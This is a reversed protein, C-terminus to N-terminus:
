GRGPAMVPTHTPTKLCWYHQLSQREGPDPCLMLFYVLHGRQAFASEREQLLAGRLLDKARPLPFLLAHALPLSIYWLSPPPMNEERLVKGGSFLWSRDAWTKHWAKAAERDLASPFLPVKGADDARPLFARGALNRGPRTSSRWSHSSLKKEQGKRKLAKTSVLKGLM